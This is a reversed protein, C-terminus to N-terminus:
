NGRTEPESATRAKCLSPKSTARWRPLWVYHPPARGPADNWVMALDLRSSEGANQPLGADRDSSNVHARQITGRERNFERYAECVWEELGPEPSRGSVHFAHGICVAVGHGHGRRDHFAGPHLDGPPFVGTPGIGFTVPTLPVWPSSGPSTSRCQFEM